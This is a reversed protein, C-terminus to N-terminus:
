HKTLVEILEDDIAFGEVLGSEVLSNCSHTLRDAQPQNVTVPSNLITRFVEQATVQLKTHIAYLSPHEEEEPWAM